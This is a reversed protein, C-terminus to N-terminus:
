NFLSLFHEYKDKPGYLSVLDLFEKITYRIAAPISIEQDKELKPKTAQEAIRPM